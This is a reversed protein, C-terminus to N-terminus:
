DSVSLSEDLERGPLWSEAGDDCGTGSRLSRAGRECCSGLWSEKNNSCSSGLEHSSYPSPNGAPSSSGSVFSARSGGAWSHAMESSPVWLPSVLEWFQPRAVKLRRTVESPSSSEFVKTDREARDEDGESLGKPNFSESSVSMTTSSLAGVM